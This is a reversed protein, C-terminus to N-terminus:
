PRGFRGEELRQLRAKRHIEGFYRADDALKPIIVSYRVLSTEDRVFLRNGQLAQHALLPPADNLIVVDVDGVEELEAALQCRLEFRQMPTLAPDVYVGVDWDSDQRPRGGARSGFLLAFHIADHRELLDTLRDESRSLSDIAPIATSM